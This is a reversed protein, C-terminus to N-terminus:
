PQEGEGRVARSRPVDIRFVAGRPRRPTHTLTGGHAEVLARATALGIGGGDLKTTEFLGFVDLGAPVGAGDDAVEIVVREPSPARSTVVVQGGAEVADLANKILNDLVRRLKEPDAEIVGVTPAIAVVLTVQRAAAVARWTAITGDVLLRVDVDALELRQDRLFRKSRTIIDMVHAVAADLDLLDRRVASVALEGRAEAVQVLRATILAVATLPNGLDHVIGAAIAGIEGLRRRRELEAGLRHAEAEARRRESIDQGVFLVGDGTPPRRATWQLVHAGDRATFDDERWTSWDAAAAALTRAVRARGVAPVCRDVFSGGVLEKAPWGFVRAAERNLARVAGVGDLEVVACHIVDALSGHPDHADHDDTRQASEGTM